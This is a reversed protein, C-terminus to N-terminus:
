KVLNKTRFEIWRRTGVGNKGKWYSNLFADNIIKQIVALTNIYFLKSIDAVM